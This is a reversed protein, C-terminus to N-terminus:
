TTQSRSRNFLAGSVTDICWMGGGDCLVVRSDMCWMGYEVNWPVFRRHVCASDCTCACVKLIRSFLVFLSVEDADRLTIAVLPAVWQQILLIVTVLLTVFEVLRRMVFRVQVFACVSASLYAAM